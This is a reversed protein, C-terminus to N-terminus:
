KWTGPATTEIMQFDAKRSSCDPCVWSEPVDQWRTGAPIGDDPMGLEEDYTFDCLTCHWKGGSRTAAPGPSPSDRRRTDPFNLIIAELGQAGAHLKFPEDEPRVFVLSLGQHEKNEHLFSGKLVIVYQGDGPAPDPASTTANPQMQLSYVGLGADDRMEPVACLAHSTGMALGPFNVPRKLQWPKRNPVRKLQDLEKSIHQPGIDRHARLVLFTFGTTSVLPGYPTYARSFHVAYTTLQEKGMRFEGDILVHFQDVSHFHVPDLYPGPAHENLTAHPMEHDDPYDFFGIKAGTQAQNRRKLLRTKAEEYAVVMTM